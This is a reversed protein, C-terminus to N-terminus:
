TKEAAAIDAAKRDIFRTVTQQAYGFIFALLLVSALSTYVGVIAGTGVALVGVVATWLGMVVKVLSLAPRPDFWLTNTLKRRTMYLSVLASLAGGLSGFLMVLALLAWGAITAGGSPLPIIRDGAPMIAQVVITVVAAVFFGAAIYVIGRQQGRESEHRAEAASHADHIMAVATKRRDEVTVQNWLQQKLETAKKVPMEQEAHREAVRMLEAVHADPTLGDIREEVRHLESWSENIASGTLWALRDRKDIHDTRVNALKRSLRDLEKNDAGPAQLDSIQDELQDARERALTAWGTMSIVESKSRVVEDDMSAAALRCHSVVRKPLGETLVCIPLGRLYVARNGPIDDPM